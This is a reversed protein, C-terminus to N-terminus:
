FLGRCTGRAITPFSVDFNLDNAAILRAHMLFAPRSAEPFLERGLRRRIPNVTSDRWQIAAKKKGSRRAVRPSQDPSRVSLVSEVVKARGVFPEELVHIGQHLPHRIQEM